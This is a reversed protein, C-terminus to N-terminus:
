LLPPFIWVTKEIPVASYPKREGGDLTRAVGSGPKFFQTVSHIKRLYHQLFYESWSVLQPAIDANAWACLIEDAADADQSKWFKAIAGSEPVSDSSFAPVTEDMSAEVSRGKGPIDHEIIWAFENMPAVHCGPFMACLIEPQGPKWNQSM